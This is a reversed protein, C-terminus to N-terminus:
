DLVATAKAQSSTDTIDAVVEHKRCNFPHVPSVYTENGPLARIQFSSQCPPTHGLSCTPPSDNNVLYVVSSRIVNTITFWAEVKTGGPSTWCVDLTLLGHDGFPDTDRVHRLIAM